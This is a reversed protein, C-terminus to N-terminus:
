PLADDPYQIAKLKTLRKSVRTNRQATLKTLRRWYAMTNPDLESLDAGGRETRLNWLWEPYDSDKKLEPDDGEVYINAGCCHTLLKQPDTEVEMRTKQAAASGVKGVLKKAYTRANPHFFRPRLLCYMYHMSAAM